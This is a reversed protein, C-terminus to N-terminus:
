QRFAARRHDARGQERPNEDEFAFHAGGAHGCGSPRARAPHNSSSVASRVTRPPAARRHGHSGPSAGDRVHCSRRESTARGQSPCSGIATRSAIASQGSMMGAYTLMHHNHAMYLRYFDQQPSRATYSADADIAKANAAIAEQWRGRRVDIHPAARRM